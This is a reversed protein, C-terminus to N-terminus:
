GSKEAGQRGRMSAFFKRLNDPLQYSKENGDQKERPSGYVERLIADIIMAKPPVTYEKGHYVWVRCDVDDGCLDGCSECLSEKVELQIDRGNVRITPSSRFELEQAQEESQVHIKHVNIEVDSAELVRTVESLAEELNNETGQCRNCISLDIYMFEIDVRRKKTSPVISSLAILQPSCCSPSGSETIVTSSPIISDKRSTNKIMDKGHLPDKYKQIERFIEETEPRKGCKGQNTYIMRGNVSVEYIGNHGEKLHATIGFKDKIAAGLSSAL